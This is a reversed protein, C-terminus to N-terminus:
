LLGGPKEGQDSFEFSDDNNKLHEKNFTLIKSDIQCANQRKICSARESTLLQLIKQKQSHNLNLNEM